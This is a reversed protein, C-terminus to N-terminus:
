PVHMHCATVVFPEHHDKPEMHFLRTYNPRSLPLMQVEKHLIQRGYPSGSAGKPDSPAAHTEGNRLRIDYILMGRSEAAFHYWNPTM